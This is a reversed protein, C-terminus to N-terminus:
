QLVFNSTQTAKVVLVRYEGIGVEVPPIFSIQLDNGNGENSIDEVFINEVRPSEIPTTNMLTMVSELSLILEKDSGDPALLTYNLSSVELDPLAGLVSLVSRKM